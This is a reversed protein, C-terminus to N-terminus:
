GHDSESEIRVTGQAREERGTDGFYAEQLLRFGRLARKEVTKRPVGMRRAIESQTIDEVKMMWIIDRCNVPLSAFAQALRWLDQGVNARHEPSLEDILVNLADINGRMEISVIRGRRVKDAMLHRATAFLFGRPQVPRERAASEYVRIYTEQCLDDVEAKDPWVRTLFKLLAREHVLIERSFWEDLSDAPQPELM